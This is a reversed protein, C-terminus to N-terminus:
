QLSQLLFPIMGKRPRGQYLTEYQTHQYHRGYIAEYELDFTAFDTKGSTAVSDHVQHFTGENLLCVNRANPRTTYRQFIEINALGGGPSAFREDFGGHQEFMARTMSYANSENISGFFGAGSSGAFVSIDFLADPAEPWHAKAILGDELARDYGEPVSLMQVKPGLHWSLAFVFADDVTEHARLTGAVIGQSLIRAGDVCFMLLDGTALERAAWNMAFVPSPHPEPVRIISVGPPPNDYTLPIKSGNDLVIVEYDGAQVGTQYPIASSLITRPAERAMDFTCIIVSLRPRRRPADPSAVLPM